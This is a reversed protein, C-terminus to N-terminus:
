ARGVQVHQITQSEDVQVQQRLQSEDVQIQQVPQDSAEPLDGSQQGQPKHKTM